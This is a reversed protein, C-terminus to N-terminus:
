EHCLLKVVGPKANAVLLSAILFFMLRGQQFLLPYFDCLGIFLFAALLSLFLATEATKPARFSKWVAGALFALLAGLSILGTECALFLFINHPATEKVRIPADAAFYPGARETFQTFGLGLWPHDQVIHLGTQLQIKRTDDSDRSLQNYNVVGGRYSYPSYLLVATLCFGFAAMAMTPRQQRVLLLWLITGIAWAFLAARSFSLALAFVQFPLTALWIRKAGSLYYTALIAFVMFGGFVNAHPFTGSARILTTSAARTGFLPDLAWRSGDATGFVSMQNTEGLIRLGLPGQHFYQGIAVATQFLAACVICMLVVQTIKRPEEVNILFSALAIPTFLQLLRCYAVPYLAFPSAAISCLACVWVIWLPNRLWKIRFAFATLALVLFDSVYFYLKKEYQGSVFLGDPILTLSYFRFWKDYKHEIPILFALLGLLIAYLITKKSM